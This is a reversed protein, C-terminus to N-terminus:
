EVFIRSHQLHYWKACSLVLNSDVTSEPVQLYTEYVQQTFVLRSSLSNKIRFQSHEFDLSTISQSLSKTIRELNKTPQIEIFEIHNFENEYESFYMISQRLLNFSNIGDDFLYLNQLSM